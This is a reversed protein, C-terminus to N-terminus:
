EGGTGRSLGRAIANAIMASAPDRAAQAVARAANIIADNPAAGLADGHQAIRQAAAAAAAALAAPNHDDGDDEDLVVVERAERQEREHKAAEKLLKTAWPNTCSSWWERDHAWAWEGIKKRFAPSTDHCGDCDTVTKRYWYKAMSHDKPFGHQGLSYSWGLHACAHESGLMAARMMLTTGYSEQKPMGKGNIYLLALSTTCRADSLKMAETFYHRARVPDVKLGEKTGDRYGFGLYKIAVLDGEKAKSDLHAIKADYEAKDRMTAHWKDVTEGKLIGRETLHKLMNKVQTAPVLKKGMPENTVPSRAGAGSQDMSFWKKIADREYCRGDEALAPEIPLEQTIPCLYEAVLPDSVSSAEESLDEQAEDDAKRKGGSIAPPAQRGPPPPAVAAEGGGPPEPNTAM